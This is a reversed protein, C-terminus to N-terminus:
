SDCYICCLQFSRPCTSSQSKRKCAEWVVATRVKASQHCKLPFCMECKMASVDMASVVAGFQGMGDPGCTLIPVLVSKFVSLKTTISLERKTVVSRYLERLVANAKGIRTDIEESWRGDSAFVVGLHKFKEVEQLTNGSVQLMCQRPNTSLCLVETNEINNENRSM